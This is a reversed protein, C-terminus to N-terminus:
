ARVAAGGGKYYEHVEFEEVAPPSEIGAAAAGPRLREQAFRDFQERSEWFDTAAFGGEVAWSAHFLLGDPANLDPRIHSNLKDVLEPTWGAGFIRIGIAM